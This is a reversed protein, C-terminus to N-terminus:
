SSIPVVSRCNPWCSPRSIRMTRESSGTTSSTWTAARLDDVDVFVTPITRWGLERAGQLRMNGAIVVKDSRRAIVPRAEMLGREAELTKLFHPKRESRMRRPNRENLVLEDVSADVIEPM